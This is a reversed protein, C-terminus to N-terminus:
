QAAVKQVTVKQGDTLSNVGAMVVLDGKKLGQSVIVGDADYRLVKVPHRAVAGDAVMWVQPETGTQLLATSPIRVMLDGPVDAHGVVIAGLRMTEPADPLSVKVQYTGTVPDANPAIERLVGTTTVKPDDQLWIKVKMGAHAYAVHQPAIAFVADREGRQAIQVIMQGAAVVQGVDAGTATVVGETPALLQTYKLQDQALKLNAQAGELEAQAGQLGQLALEYQQRTSFGDDLLKRVRAEQPAAREVSAQAASVQAQAADVKSQFDTADIRAILDGAKVQAGVDVNRETLRGAVLFGVNATSRAEIRGSGEASALPTDQPDIEIVRVARPTPPAEDSDKTCAAVPLLLMLILALRRAGALPASGEDIM